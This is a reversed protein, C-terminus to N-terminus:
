IIAGTLVAFIISFFYLNREKEPLEETNWIFYIAITAVLMVLYLIILLTLDVLHNQYALVILRSILAYVNVLLLVINLKKM